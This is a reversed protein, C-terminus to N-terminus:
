GVYPGGFTMDPDLDAATRAARAPPDASPILPAAPEDRRTFWDAAVSVSAGGTGPPPVERVGSALEEAM